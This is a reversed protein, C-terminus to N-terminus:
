TPDFQSAMEQFYLFQKWITINNRKLDQSSKQQVKKNSLRIDELIYEIYKKKGTILKNLLSIEDNERWFLFLVKPDVIIRLM